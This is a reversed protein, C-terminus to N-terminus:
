FVYAAGVRLQGVTGNCYKKNTFSMLGQDYGAYIKVNHFFVGLQGGLSVNVKNYFDKGVINDNFWNANKVSSSGTSGINTATSFTTSNTLWFNATPGAAIFLQVNPSVNFAFQYMIPIEIYSRNSLQVSSAWNNSNNNSVKKDVKGKFMFNMRAGVCVTSHQSFNWDYGVEIFGGDFSSKDLMITGGLLTTGDIESNYFNSSYGGGLRLGNPRASLSVCAVTLAFLTIIIKKM